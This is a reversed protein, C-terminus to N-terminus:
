ATSDEDHTGAKQRRRNRKRTDVHNKVDQIVGKCVPDKGEEARLVNIELMTGRHSYGDAMYKAAALTEGEDLKRKPGCNSPRSMPDFDAGQEAIWELTVRVHRPQPSESGMLYRINAVTGGRGDWDEEEPSGLAIYLTQITARRRAEDAHTRPPVPERRDPPEASRSRRKGGAKTTTKTASDHTSCGGQKAELRAKWEAVKREEYVTDKNSGKQKRGIQKRRPAHGM